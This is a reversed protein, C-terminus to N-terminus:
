LVIYLGTGGVMIIQKKDYLTKILKLVDKQYRHINYEETVSVYGYLYHPIGKMESKSPKATGISLEKYVQRSDANIIIGNIKKALDIAINSKGSATPGAIVIISRM